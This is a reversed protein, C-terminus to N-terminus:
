YNYITNLMDATPDPRKSNGLEVWVTNGEQNQKLYGAKIASDLAEEFDMMSMTRFFYQFLDQSTKRGDKEIRTLIETARKTIPSQGISEFVKNMDTELASVLGVASELHRQHIRLDNSESAALVMALKHAHVQKRALYGGFQEPNLHPHKEAHHRAYWETGWEYAHETLQYEGTLKSIEVLDKILDNRLRDNKQDMSRKPYAVLQRKQDAYIWLARSTFGGSIIYEPM